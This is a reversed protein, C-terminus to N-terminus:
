SVFWGGNDHMCIHDVCFGCDINGIKLAVGSIRGRWSDIVESGRVGLAGHDFFGDHRLEDFDLLLESSVDNSFTLTSNESLLM